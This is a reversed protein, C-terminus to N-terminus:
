EAARKEWLAVGVEGLMTQVVTEGSDEDDYFDPVPRIMRQRVPPTRAIEPLLGHLEDRLRELQAKAVSEELEVQETWRRIEVALGKAAEIRENFLDIEQQRAILFDRARALNRDSYTDALEASVHSMQAALELISPQLEALDPHDRLFAIRERISDFEGKMQFVGTRDATHALSYARAVDKQNMHFKRHSTELAMMRANAPLFFCLLVALATIGSQVYIGAEPYTVDGFALSLSLWPAHGLASAGTYALLGLAACAIAVFAIRQLAMRILEAAARIHLVM